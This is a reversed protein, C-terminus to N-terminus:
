KIAGISRYGENFAERNIEVFKPPVRGNIVELWLAPESGLLACLAGLIVVNATKTNGVIEAIELGKIWFSKQTVPAIMAKIADDDPYVAQGASVTVPTIRYDNVLVSGGPKLYDIYRGAEMKEFAILFDAEGKPIIPSFVQAAWRLHSTVSGGRQSMGHVEAQKAEFGLKLGVEALVNSALITGQGGVGVLLFNVAQRIETKLM